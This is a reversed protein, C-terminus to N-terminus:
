INNRSILKYNGTINMREIEQMAELVLEDEDEQTLANSTNVLRALYACTHYGMAVDFAYWEDFQTFPNYPNDTTTIKYNISM